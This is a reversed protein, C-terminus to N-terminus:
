TTALRGSLGSKVSSELNPFNDFELHAPMQFSSYNQGRTILVPVISIGQIQAMVNETYFVDEKENGIYAFQVKGEYSALRDMLLQFSSPHPKRFEKGAELASIIHTFGDRYGSETIKGLSVDILASSSNSVIHLQRGQQSAYNLFDVAGEAVDIEDSLNTYSRRFEDFRQWFGEIDQGYGLENRALGNRESTTRFASAWATSVKFLHDPDQYRQDSFRRVQEIHRDGMVGQKIFSQYLNPDVLPDHDSLVFWAIRWMTKETDFVILTDDLDLVLHEANLLGEKLVDIM